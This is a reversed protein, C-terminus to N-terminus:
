GDEFNLHDTDPAGNDRLLKAYMEPRLLTRHFIGGAVGGGASYAIRRLTMLERLESINAFYLCRLQPAMVEACQFLVEETVLYTMIGDLERHLRGGAFDELLVRSNMSRSVTLYDELVLNIKEGFRDRLALLLPMSDSVVWVDDKLDLCSCLVEVLSDSYLRSRLNLVIRSIDEREGIKSLLPTIRRRDAVHLGYYFGFYRVFRHEVTAEISQGSQVEGYLPLEVGLSCTAQLSPPLPALKDVHRPSYLNGATVNIM